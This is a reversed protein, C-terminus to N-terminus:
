ITFNIFCLTFVRSEFIVVYLVYLHRIDSTIAGMHKLCMYFSTYFCLCLCFPQHSQGWMNAWKVFNEITADSGSCGGMWLKMLIMEVHNSIEQRSNPTGESCNGRM